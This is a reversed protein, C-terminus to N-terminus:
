EENWGINMCTAALAVVVCQIGYLIQIGLVHSM